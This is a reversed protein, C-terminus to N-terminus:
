SVRTGSNANLLAIRREVEEKSINEPATPGIPDLGANHMAALFHFPDRKTRKAADRMSRRNVVSILPRLGLKTLPRLAEHALSVIEHEELHGQLFPLGPRWANCLMNVGNATVKQVIVRIGSRRKLRREQKRLSKILNISLIDSM